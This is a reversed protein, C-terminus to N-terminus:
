SHRRTILENKLPFVSSMFAVVYFFIHGSHCSPLKISNKFFTVFFLVFLCSYEPELSQDWVSLKVHM